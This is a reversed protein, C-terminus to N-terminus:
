AIANLMNGYVNNLAAVQEALKKQAAEYQRGAELAAVTAAQLDAANKGVAEITNGAAVIKATQEKYAANQAELAKLQLEYAANLNTLQANIAVAGKEYDQTAKAVNNVGAIVANYSQGLAAYQSGLSKSAETLADQSGAFKQAAEGAAAMNTTLRATEDAVKGLSALQGATKGLNEIGEKLAKVDDDSIEPINTRPRATTKGGGTVEGAAAAVVTEGAAEIDRESLLSPRPSNAKAELIEPDTGYALLQPFVEEWHFEPHPKDLAGIAFLFAETFMGIMLTQSAGPWHLIKFLAGVIVVSAGLSYIVGVVKKGKYSEYWHMFANQKKEKKAM